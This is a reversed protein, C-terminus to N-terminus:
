RWGKGMAAALCAAPKGKHFYQRNLRLDTLEQGWITLNFLLLSVDAISCVGGFTDPKLFFSLWCLIRWFGGPRCALLLVENTIATIAGPFTQLMVLVM